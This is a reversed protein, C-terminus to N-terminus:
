KAPRMSTVETGCRGCQVWSFGGNVPRSRSPRSPRPRVQWIQLECVWHPCPCLPLWQAQASGSRSRRDVGTAEVLAPTGSASSPRTDDHLDSDWVGRIPSTCTSTRPRDVRFVSCPTLICCHYQAVGHEQCSCSPPSDIFHFTRPRNRSWHITM